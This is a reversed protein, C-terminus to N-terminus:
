QAQGEQRLAAGLAHLAYVQAEYSSLEPVGGLDMVESLDLREVPLDLSSGLKEVLGVNDPVSVLLRRVALHNFQRDFHDISRQLELELRDLYQQRLAENADQLQGVSIEIRRALYLEGDNTFTLLGGSEDFALLALARGEHEYLAAINRQAMEPIDIVRLNFNAREFLETRKKIVVNSAAVVYISKKRDAGAQNNPIRLVDLAADDVHYSLMDKVSWRVAAKLEDEPVNPAEIQLLQYEGPALLTSFQFDGLRMGKRMKELAAPTIGSSKIGTVPQFVYTVVQPRGAVYKVQAFHVGNTSIAVVFGPGASKSRNFFPIKMISMFIPCYGM